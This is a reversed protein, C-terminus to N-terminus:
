RSWSLPRQNIRGLDGISHGSPGSRVGILQELEALTLDDSKVVLEANIM